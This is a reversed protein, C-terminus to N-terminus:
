ASRDGLLRGEAHHVDRLRAVAVGSARKADRLVYTHGHAVLNIGAFWLLASAVGAGLWVLGRPM